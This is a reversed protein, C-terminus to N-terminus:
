HDRKSCGLTYFNGSTLTLGRESVGNRELPIAFTFVKKLEAFSKSLFNQFITSLDIQPPLM